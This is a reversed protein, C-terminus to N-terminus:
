KYPGPSRKSKTMNKWRIWITLHQDESRNEQSTQFACGVMKEQMTFAFSMLPQKFFVKIFIFFFVQWFCKTNNCVAENSLCLIYLVLFNKSFTHIKWFFVVPHFIFPFSFFQSFPQSRWKKKLWFQLIATCPCNNQAPYTFPKHSICTVCALMFRTTGNVWVEEKLM